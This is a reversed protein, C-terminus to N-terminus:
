KKLFMSKSYIITKQNPSLELYEESATVLEYKKVLEKLMLRICSLNYDLGKKTNREPIQNLKLGRWGTKHLNDSENKLEEIDIKEETLRTTYLVVLGRLDRCGRFERIINEITILERILCRPRTSNIPNQSVFDLNVVHYCLPDSLDNYNQRFLSDEFRRGGIVKIPGEANLALMQHHSYTWATIEKFTTLNQEVLWEIERCNVSSTLTLITLHKNKRYRPQLFNSAEMVGPVWLDKILRDKLTELYTM